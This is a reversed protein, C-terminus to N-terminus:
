CRDTFLLRRPLIKNHVDLIQIEHQKEENNNRKKRDLWSIGQASNQPQRAVRGM